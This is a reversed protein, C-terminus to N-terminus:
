LLNEDDIKNERYKRALSEQLKEEMVMAGMPAVLFENAKPNGLCNIDASVESM